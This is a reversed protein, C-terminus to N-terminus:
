MNAIIQAYNSIIEEYNTFIVVHSIHRKVSPKLPISADFTTIIIIEVAKVCPLTSPVSWAESEPGKGEFDATIAYHRWQLPM